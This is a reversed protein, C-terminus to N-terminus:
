NPKGAGPLQVIKSAQSDDEQDLIFDLNLIDAGTLGRIIQNNCRGCVVPSTAGAIDRIKITVNPLTVIEALIKDKEATFEKMREPPVEWRGSGAEKEVGFQEVLENHHKEIALIKDRAEALFKRLRYNAYPDIKQGNLLFLISEQKEVLEKVTIQSM